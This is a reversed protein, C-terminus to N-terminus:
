ISLIFGHILIDIIPLVGSTTGQYYMNTATLYQEFPFRTYEGGGVGAVSGAMQPSPYNGSGDASLQLIVLAAATNDNLHATGFVWKAISPVYATLSIVAWSTAAGNDIAKASQAKYNVKNGNQVFNVFNSSGNNYVAGVLLGYDYDSINTKNVSSWTSATSLVSAIIDNDIDYITYIYYWTSGAESGTDLANPGLSDEINATLNIGSIAVLESNTHHELVSADADVDVQYAPNSSNNIIVLKKYYGRPLLSLSSSAIGGDKVKFVSTGGDQLDIIDSTTTQNIIISDATIDKHTGDSFNHEANDTPLEVWTTGQYQELFGLQTNIYIQKDEPSGPRSATNGYSINHFGGDGHEIDLFANLETGWTDRDGGIVPKRAM